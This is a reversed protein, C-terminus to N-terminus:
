QPRVQLFKEVQGLCSTFGQLGLGRVLDCTLWDTPLRLGSFFGQSKSELAEPRPRGDGERYEAELTATSGTLLVKLQYQRRLDMEHSYALRLQESGLITVTKRCWYGAQDM